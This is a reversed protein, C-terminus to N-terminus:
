GKLKTVEKKGAHVKKQGMVGPQWDKEKPIM